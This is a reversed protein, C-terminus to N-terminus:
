WWIKNETSLGELFQRKTFVEGVVHLIEELLEEIQNVTDGVQQGLLQCLTNINDDIM